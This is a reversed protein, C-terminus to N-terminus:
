FPKQRYPHTPATFCCIMKRIQRAQVLTGVDFRGDAGGPENSIGTLNNAGQRHLAAILNQPAGVGGFDAFMITAGNPIDAVADDFSPYIKNKVQRTERLATYVNFGLQLHSGPYYGTSPPM